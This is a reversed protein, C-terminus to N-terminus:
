DFGEVYNGGLNGGMLNSDFITNGRKSRGVTIEFNEGKRKTTGEM